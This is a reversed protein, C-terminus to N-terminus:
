IISVNSLNSWRKLLTRVHKEDADENPTAILKTNIKMIFVGTYPINALILSAGVLWERNGTKYALV